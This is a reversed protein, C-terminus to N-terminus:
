RPLGPALMREDLEGLKVVAAVDGQGGGVQGGGVEGIAEAPLIIRFFGRQQFKVPLLVITPVRLVCVVRFCVYLFSRVNIRNLLEYALGGADCTKFSQTRIRTTRTM